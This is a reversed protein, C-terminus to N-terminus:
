RTWGEQSRQVGGSKKQELRAEGLEPQSCLTGKKNESTLDALEADALGKFAHPLEALAGRM